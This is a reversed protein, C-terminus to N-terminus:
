RKIFGADSQAPVDIKGSFDVKRYPVLGCAVTTQPLHQQWRLDNVAAVQAGYVSNKRADAGIHATPRRLGGIRCPYGSIVFRCCQQRAM